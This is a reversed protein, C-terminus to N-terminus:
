PSRWEDVRRGGMRPQEVPPIDPKGNWSGDFPMSGRDAPHNGAGMEDGDFTGDEDRDLGMRVGSGPPTCTYTIEGGPLFASSRLQSDTVRPARRRDPQFAGNGVYLYGREARGQRRKAILDCDGAAAREILLDIRAGAVQGNSATLTIQQGVIPALNSDFAFMFQEIQRNLTVGDPTLPIGNPNGPDDPGAFGAPRPAFGVARNLRFVTDVSGDHKFGFGRIQDGMFANDIEPDFSEPLFVGPARAMGFKGVKQYMNRLHPVKFLQNQADFTSRGDTGFFGPQPVGFEANGRPDLRHCDACSTFTDSAPGFYFDRGARQDPTLSNDLNRIPNPPYTVQLIFDNFAQMESATLLTPRGLLDPFAANFRKFAAEEDFTGSDPQATPGDSGGTRDGRWHMSGHNALGRLSQTVMPGKMPHFDTSVPSGDPRCHIWIGPGCVQSPHIVFPGPNRIQMGDPDGLDWATSDLDGFIHCSACASDGHSSTFAADYLFRRGRVISDPEPNHLAIHAIERRAATDIVSISNDFRTLTFLRRNAEDLVVGAPGGGSVPIHRSSDPVFSDNALDSTDFVGIKASGFAAVYLTKGNRSVAMAQPFALSRRNEDNPIAACCVSYDIHKNLHRPLVEGDRLVTIRSEHLRGRVTSNGSTAPGSFRIENRAETNSAYLDGTVPNIALNFIITGVGAFADVTRPPNAAADIVFVDKDPLSFKVQDDWVRGLEDTWHVGDNKVILGVPPQQIGEVNTFPPPTGGHVAVIEGLVTTTRNGTHFGAAYVEHGRPSVALGRPTETFLNLITIPAGGLTTGLADADFVWVDARGVGPTTLQPDYPVNQGRHATTIFARNRRPGGFVIDRPEDGVLLTRVVRGVSAKGGISAHGAENTPAHERLDADVVVVSVSDSLHNVVWVERDSRAAVAVPELGVPVSGRHVLGERTIRFVELRNDPTNTAFLTSGGPSLALPRVLGSEFATFSSTDALSTAPPSGADLFAALAWASGFTGWFCRRASARPFDMVVEERKTM